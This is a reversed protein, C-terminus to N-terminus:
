AHRFTNSVYRSRLRTQLRQYLWHTKEDFDFSPNRILSGYGFVWLVM